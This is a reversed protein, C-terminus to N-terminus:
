RLLPDILKGNLKAEWHVHPGNTLGSMGVLAIAQGRAVRAGVSVLVASAHYYCTELGGAHQLCVRIGGEGDDQWGIKTVVGADAAVIPSAFHAAVDVGSHGAHFFQAIPGAVPRILHGIGSDIKAFREAFPVPVGGPDGIVIEYCRFVAYLNDHRDTRVTGGFFRGDPSFGRVGFVDPLIAPNPSPSPWVVQSEEYLDGAAVTPRPTRVLLTQGDAAWEHVANRPIAIQATTSSTLDRIELRTAYRVLLIAGTPAWETYLAGPLDLPAADTTATTGLFREPTVDRQDYRTLTFYSGDGSWEWNDQPYHPVTKDGLRGLTDATRGGRWARITSKEIYLLTDGQWRFEPNSPTLKAVLEGTKSDMVELFDAKQGWYALYKGSPSWAPRGYEISGLSRRQMTRMDLLELVEDELYGNPGSSPLREFRVVALMRRDPSWKADIVNVLDPMAVREICYLGPAPLTDEGPLVAAAPASFSLVLACSVSAV